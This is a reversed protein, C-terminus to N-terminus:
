IQVRAYKKLTANKYLYIYKCGSEILRHLNVLVQLGAHGIIVILAYIDM